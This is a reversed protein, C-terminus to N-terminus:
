AKNQSAPAGWGILLICIQVCVKWHLKIWQFKVLEARFIRLETGRERRVYYKMGCTIVWVIWDEVYNRHIRRNLWIMLRLIRVKMDERSYLRFTILKSLLSSHIKNEPWISNRCFEGGNETGWRQFGAPLTLSWQLGVVKLLITPSSSSKADRRAFYSDHDSWSALWVVTIM